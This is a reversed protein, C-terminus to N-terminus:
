KYNISEFIDFLHGVASELRPLSTRHHRPGSRAFEIVVFDIKPKGVMSTSSLLAQISKEKRGARDHNMPRTLSPM